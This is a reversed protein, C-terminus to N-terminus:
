QLSKLTILFPNSFAIYQLFFLLNVETALKDSNTPSDAKESSNPAGEKVPVSNDNQKGGDEKDNNKIQDPEVMYRKEEKPNEKSGPVGEGDDSTSIKLAKHV